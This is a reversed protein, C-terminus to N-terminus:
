GWFGFPKTVNGTYPALTMLYCGADGYDPTWGTVSLGYDYNIMTGSTAYYGTNNVDDYSSGIVLDVVVYGELAAEVSQKLANAENLATESAGNCPVDIHIPNEKSVEVGQAALDEIAKNMYEMAAEPNHWGDYGDSSGGDKEPNWVLAPVGAVDLFAQLMEGYWTGAPFTVSKGGVTATTEEELSSFNGPTYSNRLSAFKLDEGNTQAGMAGQDCGFNVAQRFNANNVAAHTRAADDLIDSTYIGADLDISDASEHSQSSVMRSPDNFNAFSLRPLCWFNAWTTTNLGSQYHYKEFIGDKKAQELSTASLGMGVVEGNQAMNYTQLPDDGSIYYFTLSTINVNDANWYTPNPKMVISNKETWSTILFPGCCAINNPSSGYTYGSATSDFDAGFKGGQSEYYNRCLPAAVGDYTLMTDFVAFPKELTYELTYQDVAKVGVHSFDPDSGDVYALYGAIVGCFLEEQGGGADAVHQLSAVWDDAQVEGVERGQSDVWKVGPRIHYTYTLGDDSIEWSEALAPQMVNEVDYQVLKDVTLCTYLSNDTNWSSLSDWTTPDGTYTTAYETGITHGQDALYGRVWEMYTGTGKLENWKAKIETREEGTLYDDTIFLATEYRNSDNGWGVTSMTYPVARSIAYNGGRSVTPVFVGSELLKSEAYAMKLLRVDATDATQADQLAAWFEGFNMDYLADWEYTTPQFAGEEAPPADTNTDNPTTTDQNPTSPTDNTKNGCAALSLLMALALILSLFKKKM